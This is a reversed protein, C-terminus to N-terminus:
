RYSDCPTSLLSRQWAIERTLKNAQPLSALMQERWQNYSETGYIRVANRRLDCFLLVDSSDLWGNKQVHSAPARDTWALQVMLKMGSWVWDQIQPEQAATEGCNKPINDLDASFKKLGMLLEFCGGPSNDLKCHKELVKALAPKVITENGSPYLFKRQSERFIDMQADCVTLPPNFAIILFFGIVIAGMAVVVKPLSALFQDM